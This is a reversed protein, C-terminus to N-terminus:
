NVSSLVFTIGDLDLVYTELSVEKLSTGFTHFIFQHHDNTGERHVIEEWVM